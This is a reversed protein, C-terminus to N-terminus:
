EVHVNGVRAGPEQSTQSNLNLRLSDVRGGECVCRRGDNEWQEWKLM